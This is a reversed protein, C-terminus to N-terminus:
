AAYLLRRSKNMSKLFYPNASAGDEVLDVTRGLMAELADKFGFYQELPDSAAGLDFKVLFDFDSRAPDFVGTAASGFLELRRVGFRACLAPIEARHQEILDPLPSVVPTSM